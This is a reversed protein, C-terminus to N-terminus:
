KNMLNQMMLFQAVNSAAGGMANAQGIQGAAQANAIGTQLGAINQGAQGINAAQGAAAAQGLGLINQLPAMEQQRGALWQNFAQGEFQAGINGALQGAGTIANTSLGQGGIQMQNRMANLAQDTAFQQTQSEEMKFPTAFRGGPAMGEMLQQLATLGAQRFPENMAQQSALMREQGAIAAAGGQAQTEAAGKAGESSIAGGVVAGVAAVWPM